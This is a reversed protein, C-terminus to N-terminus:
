LLLAGTFTFLMALGTVVFPAKDLPGGNAGNEEDGSGSSSSGSASNTSAGSGPEADGTSTGQATQSGEGKLGPGTGAGDKMFKKAGEPMAPLKTSDVLWNSDKSPCAAAKTTKSFGGDGTPAPYKSMAKAFNAFEPKEEVKSGPGLKAIGYGNEELAYEYMLGGSYVGTMKESM